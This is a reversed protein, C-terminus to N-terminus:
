MCDCVCVSPHTGRVQVILPEYAEASEAQRQESLVHMHLSLVGSAVALKEANELLVRYTHINVRAHTNPWTHANQCTRACAHVESYKIVTLIPLNKTSGPQVISMLVRNCALTRAESTHSPGLEPTAQSPQSHAHMCVYACAAETHL